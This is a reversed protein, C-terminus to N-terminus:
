SLAGRVCAEFDFPTSTALLHRCHSAVYDAKHQAIAPLVDCHGRLLDDIRDPFVEVETHVNWTQVQPRQGSLTKLRAGAREMTRQCAMATAVAAALGPPEAGPLMSPPDHPGEVPDLNRDPRAERPANDAMPLGLDIGLMKAAAQAQDPSWSAAIMKLLIMQKLEDEDPLDERSFGTERVLAEPSLQQLNFLEIAEKSRNPRIRMSSTDAYLVDSPDKTYPHLWAVTFIGCLLRLMPAIHIKVSSEEIQWTGWRNMDSMGTLIETPMDLGVALRAVAKERGEQAKEDLTGWFDILRIAGLTEAPASMVVPVLNDSNGPEDISGTMIDGMQQTLVEADSRTDGPEKRVQIESPVALLRGAMIRSTQQSQIHADMRRIERMAPLAARAPADPELHRKPHPKWLRIVVDDNGLPIREANDRKIYWIEGSGEMEDVSVIQTVEEPTEPPDLEHKSRQVYYCEGAVSFHLVVQRILEEQGEMGSALTGIARRAAESAQAPDTKIEGDVRKGVKIVALSAVNSIWNCGSRFEPVNDYMDWCESQWPQAAPKRRRKRVEPTFILASAVITDAGADVTTRYVQPVPPATRPM